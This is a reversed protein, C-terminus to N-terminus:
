ANAFLFLTNNILQQSMRHVMAVMNTGAGPSTSLMYEGPKIKQQEISEIFNLGVAASLCHGYKEFTHILQNEPVGLSARWDHIKDAFPQMTVYVQIQDIFLGAKEIVKKGLIETYKADYNLLAKCHEIDSYVFSLAEVHPDMLNYRENFKSPVSKFHIADPISGDSHSASAICGYGDDVQSVVGAVVADGFLVSYSTSKDNLYSATLCSDVILVNKRKGSMVHATADDILNLFSSCGSVLDYAGTNPIKLKHQVLCASPITIREPTQSKVIVLDIDCAKLGSNYLAIAAALSEADSPLMPKPHLSNKETNKDIPLRRREKTGRFPDAKNKESLRNFWTEYWPQNIWGSENTEIFGPLQHTKEIHDIYQADINTETRLYNVFDDCMSPSLKKAPIFAGLSILGAHMTKLPTNKMPM